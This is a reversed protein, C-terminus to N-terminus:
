VSSLAITFRCRPFFFLKLYLPETWLHTFLFGQLLFGCYSNAFICVHTFPVYCSFICILKSFHIWPFLFDTAVVKQEWPLCLSQPIFSMNIIICSASIFLFSIFTLFHTLTFFYIPFMLIYKWLGFYINSFILDITHPCLVSAPPFCSTSYSFILINVLIIVHYPSSM